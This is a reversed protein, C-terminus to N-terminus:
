RKLDIVNHDASATNNFLKFAGYRPSIPTITQRRNRARAGKGNKSTKMHILDEKKGPYYSRTRQKKM